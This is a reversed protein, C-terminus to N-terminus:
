RVRGKSYFHINLTAADASPLKTIAGNFSAMAEDAQRRLEDKSIPEPKPHPEMAAMVDDVTLKEVDKRRTSLARIRKNRDIM